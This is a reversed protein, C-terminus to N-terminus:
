EGWLQIEYKITTGQYTNETLDNVAATFEAIDLLANAVVSDSDSAALNVVESPVTGLNENIAEGSISQKLTITADGFQRNVRTYAM